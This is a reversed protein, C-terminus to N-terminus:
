ANKMLNQTYDVEKEPYYEALLNRCSYSEIESELRSRIDTKKQEHTQEQILEDVDRNVQPHMPNTPVYTHNIDLDMEAAAISMFYDAAFGSFDAVKTAKYCERLLDMSREEGYNIAYVGSSSEGLDKYGPAEEDLLSLDLNLPNYFDLNRKIINSNVLEHIKRKRDFLPEANLKVSTRAGIGYVQKKRRMISTMKELAKIYDDDNIFFQDMDMSIAVVDKKDSMHTMFHGFLNSYLSAGAGNYSGGRGSTPEAFFSIDHSKLKESEKMMKGYVEDFKSRKELDDVKRPHAIRIGLAWDVKDSAEITREIGKRLSGIHDTNSVWHRQM